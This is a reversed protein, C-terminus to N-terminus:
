VNVGKTFSGTGANAFFSGRVLDYLGIEGDSVRFCPVFHAVPEGDYYIKLSYLTMSTMSGGVGFIRATGATVFDSLAATGCQSGNLYFINLDQVAVNRNYDINRSDASGSAPFWQAGYANQYRGNLYGTHSLFAFRRTSNSSNGFCWAWTSGPDGTQEYKYDLEVKSHAGYLYLGTDVYQTGSSRIWEVQRYASPLLPKVASAILDRRRM